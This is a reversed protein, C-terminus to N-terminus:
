PVLECSGRFELAPLQRARRTSILTSCLTHAAGPPGASPKRIAGVKMAFQSVSHSFAWSSFAGRRAPRISPRRPLTSDSGQGPFGRDNWGSQHGTRHDAACRDVVRETGLIVAVDARAAAAAIVSWAHELFAPDPPPVIKGMGRYGPVFCEPFCILDAREVSAQAIAEEALCDIGGAVAPFQINALAIRFISM